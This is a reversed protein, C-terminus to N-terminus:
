DHWSQWTHVSKAILFSKLSRSRHCLASPNSPLPARPGPQARLCFIPSFGGDDAVQVARGGM